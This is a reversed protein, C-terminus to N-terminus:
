RIACCRSCCVRLVRSKGATVTPRFCFCRSSTSCRCASLRGISAFGMAASGGIAEAIPLGLVVHNSRFAAMAVVGKQRPDKVFYKAALLGMGLALFVALIMYGLLRWNVSALSEMEYVNLFLHIPLFLHFCLSNLKAFFGDSWRGRRQVLYGLAMLLLIPLVARLSFLFVDKM